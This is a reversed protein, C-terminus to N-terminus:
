AVMMQKVNKPEGAKHVTYLVCMFENKERKTKKKKKKEMKPKNKEEEDPTIEFHEDKVQAYLSSTEKKKCTTKKRKHEFNTWLKRKRENTCDNSWKNSQKNTAM